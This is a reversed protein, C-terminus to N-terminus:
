KLNVTSFSFWYETLHYNSSLDDKLSHNFHKISFVNKQISQTIYFRRGVMLKLLSKRCVSLIKLWFCASTLYILNHRIKCDVDLIVTTNAQLLFLSLITSMTKLWFCMKLNLIRMNEKSMQGFHKSFKLYLARTSTDMLGNVRIIIYLIGSDHKTISLVRLTRHGQQFTGRHPVSLSSDM